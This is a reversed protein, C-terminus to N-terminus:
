RWAIYRYRLNAQNLQNIQNTPNYFSLGTDSWSLYLMSDSSGPSGGATGYDAGYILIFSARMINQTDNPQIMVAAPRFGVDIVTPHDTGYTGDGVYEGTVYGQAWEPVVQLWGDLPCYACVGPSDIRTGAAMGPLEVNGSLAVQIAQGAEGPELAIADKSNRLFSGAIQDGDAELLTTTGYSSNNHDSYAILLKNAIATASIYNAATKYFKYPAGKKITAGNWRVFVAGSDSQADSSITVAGNLLPIIENRGVITDTFIKESILTNLSENLVCIRVGNFYYIVGNSYCCKAIASAAAGVITVTDGFTVMNNSSITAIVAKGKNGDGADSFCICVRANGGEDPLRTASICDAQIGGLSSPINNSTISLSTVTDIKLYLKYNGGNNSSYISLRTNYSVSNSDLRLNCHSLISASIGHQTSGISIATGSVACAKEYGLGSSLLYQVVFHGDSLRAISVSTVAGTYVTANGVSKGTANDILYAVLSASTAMATISYKENLKCTATAKVASSVIVNEVNDQAVIDRYAEGGQVSVVDGAAISQGERVTATRIDSVPLGSKLARANIQEGLAADAAEREPKEADWGQAKEALTTDGVTVAGDVTQPFFPNGEADYVPHIQGTIPM